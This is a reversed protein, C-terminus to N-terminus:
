KLYNLCGKKTLEISYEFGYKGAFPISEMCWFCCKDILDLKKSKKALKNFNKRLTCKTVEFTANEKTRELIAINKPSELFQLEDVMMKLGEKMKLSKPLRKIITEMMKYLGSMKLEFFSEQNFKYYNKLADLGYNNYIYESSVYIQFFLYEKAKEHLKAAKSEKVLDFGLVNTKKEKM